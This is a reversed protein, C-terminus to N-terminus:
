CKIRGIFEYVYFVPCYSDPSAQLAPSIFRVRPLSSLYLRDSLEPGPPSVVRGEMRM